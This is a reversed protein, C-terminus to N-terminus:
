RGVIGVCIGCFLNSFGVTLGAGFLCFGTLFLFALQQMVDIKFHVGYISKRECYHLVRWVFDCQLYMFLCM